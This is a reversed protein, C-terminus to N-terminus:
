DPEKSALASPTPAAKRRKLNERLAKALRADRQSGASKPHAAPPDPKTM